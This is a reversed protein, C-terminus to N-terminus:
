GFFKRDMIQEPTFPNEEPFIELGTEDEAGEMAKEYVSDDQLLKLLYPKLSPSADIELSIERRASICSQKWSTSAMKPQYRFKLLHLILRVLQSKIAKRDSNGMEVLYDYLGSEALEPLNLNKVYEATDELWQHEDIERITKISM